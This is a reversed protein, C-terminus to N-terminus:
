FPIDISFRFNETVNGSRSRLPRSFNFRLPGIPTNWFISTGVAANLFFSSDANSGAPINDLGWLSGTNFYVGGSIGYEEPLGIPFRAEVSAVTYFNGGLAQGAGGGSAGSGERPGIGNDAFGRLRDGGLFFRDTVRVGSAGFGKLIGGELEASLRIRDNALSAFKQVRATTKSFRASGGFGALEQSAELRWGDTPNVISNRRDLVYRLAVSSKWRTGVDGELVDSIKTLDTDTLTINERALNYGVRLRSDESLNFEINPTFALTRDRFPVSSRNNTTYRLGFGADVNRGLFGPDSFSMGINRSQSSNSLDLAIKQGRGLFNSESYGLTAVFGTGTQYSAGLRLRGTPKEEVKVNVIVTQPSTGPQTSVDVASFFDLARIRDVALSLERQNLVDGEVLSFQRRIVSDFTTSNGEIDIREILVPRFQVLEVEIDIIRNAEDRVPRANAEFTAFGAKGLNNDIKELMATVRRPDYPRGARIRYQGEYVSPQIQVFNNIFRIEGFRYQPGEEINYTLLVADAATTLETNVSLVKMEIYGRNRYFTTLRERDNSVQEPVYVDRKVLARFIGAQKTGLVSRLRRERYSRNGTFSIKEVEVVRNEEIEFVLDVRNDNREIIRPTVRAGLRGSAAYARALARADEEALRPSYTQRSKSLIIEKLSAKKLRKNGQFAIKNITPNEAVVITVNGQQVVLDVTKFFGSNVLAQKAANYESNTYDQGEVLGSIDVITGVTIRQNGSIVLTNVPTQADATRFVGYGMLSLVSLLIVSIVTFRVDYPFRSFYQM